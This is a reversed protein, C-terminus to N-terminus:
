IIFSSLEPLMELIQQKRNDMGPRLYWLRSLRNGIVAPLDDAKFEAPIVFM